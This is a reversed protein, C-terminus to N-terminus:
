ALDLKYLFNEFNPVILHVHEGSITEIDIKYKFGEGGKDEMITVMKVLNKSLYNNVFENYTIEQSPKKSTIFFSIIGGFLAVM